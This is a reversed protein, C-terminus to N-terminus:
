GDWDAVARRDDDRRIGPDRASPRLLSFRALGPLPDRRCSIGAKAPMVAQAPDVNLKKPASRSGLGDHQVQKLM